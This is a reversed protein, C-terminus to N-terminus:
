AGMARTAGAPDLRLAARVVATVCRLSDPPEGARVLADIAEDRGEITSFWGPEIAEPRPPDAFYARVLRLLAETDFAVLEQRMNVQRLLTAVSRLEQWLHLGESDHEEAGRAPVVGPGRGRGGGGCWAVIRAEIQRLQCRDSFRLERGGPPALLLALADRGDTLCAALEAPAPEEPGVREVQSRFVCYARRVRLAAELDRATASGAPEGGAAEIVAAIAAIVAGRLANCQSLRTWPDPPVSAVLEDLRTALERRAMAAVDAAPMARAVAASAPPEDFLDGLDDGFSAEAPKAPRPANSAEFARLSAIAVEVLRVLAPVLIAETEGVASEEFPTMDMRRAVRALDRLPPLRDHVCGAEAGAGPAAVAVDEVVVVM